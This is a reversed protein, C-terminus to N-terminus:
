AWFGLDTRSWPQMRWEDILLGYVYRDVLAGQHLAHKRLTGEHVFGHKEYFSRARVNSEVTYLYLRQLALHGFGFNCLWRLSRSGIGQGTSAPDVMIYLEARANRYDIDVLGAMASIQPPTSDSRVFVFDYRRENLLTGAFWQRTESLSVPVRIPMQTYIGESNMWSVRTPLDDLELRRVHLLSSDEM